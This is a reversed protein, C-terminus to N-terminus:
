RAGASAASRLRSPPSATASPAPRRAPARYEAPPRPPRVSSSRPASSGRAGPAIARTIRRRVTTGERRMPLEGKAATSHDQAVGAGLVVVDGLVHDDLRARPRLPDRRDTGTVPGRLARNRRDNRGSPQAAPHIGDARGATGSDARCPLGRARRRPERRGARRRGVRDQVPDDVLMQFGEESRGGRAGVPDPQEGEDLLLEAGEEPASQEDLTEQAYPAVVTRELAEARQGAFPATHALQPPRRIASCAAFRTSATMGQ